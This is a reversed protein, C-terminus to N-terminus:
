SSGRGILLRAIAAREAPDLQGIVEARQEEPLDSLVGSIVALRDSRNVGNEREGTCGALL